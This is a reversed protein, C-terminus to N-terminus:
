TDIASSYLSNFTTSLLTVPEWCCRSLCLFDQLDVWMGFWIVTHSIPLFVSVYMCADSCSGTYLMGYGVVFIFRISVNSFSKMIFNDQPVCKHATSLCPDARIHPIHLSGLTFQYLICIYSLSTNECLTYHM